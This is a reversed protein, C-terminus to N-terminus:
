RLMFSSRRIRVPSDPLMLIVELVGLCHWWSLLGTLEDFLLRRDRDLNPGYVGAFAWTSHDEVNRFTIALTFEGVCEDIKEVVRRDWMISIGNSARRSDV